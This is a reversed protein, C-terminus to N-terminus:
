KLDLGVQKLKGRNENTFVRVVGYEGDFGPKIFINGSRVRDIAQAIIPKSVKEIEKIQINLLINFETGFKKILNDYEVKVTKTKVGVELADAIIEPLPVLSKFPVRNSKSQAQRLAEEVTRDALEEVRNLVGIVLPKKCEPCIGKLKKTQEPHCSFDCDRHGDIHYRGEEPHMEITYLFESKNKNKIIQFIKDYTVDKMEAFSLVNAERGIRELSHADSNSVLSIEDLASLRWNMSPDSSPGTEIAFIHPTLEDFAEELSNYGSKSGFIGFWPTWAHAPIMIMREDVELMIQLLEKVTLGLIPRGDSRLNFGMETLKNNFKEAVEINPAFICVHIRRTQDKHKKICALETGIIFKTQNNGRLLPPNLPTNAIKLKYVGSNEIEELSERIHEFWRPHTFDGTAVIDVGRIVCNEAIKPLELSPSCARSYKSHIHLDLTQQLM